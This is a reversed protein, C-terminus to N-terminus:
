FINILSYLVQMQIIIPAQIRIWTCHATNPDVVSSKVRQIGNNSLHEYLNFESIFKISFLFYCLSLLAVGYRHPVKLFTHRSFQKLMPYLPPLPPRVLSANKKLNVLIRALSCCFIIQLINVSQPNSFPSFIIEM